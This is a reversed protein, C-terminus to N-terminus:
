PCSYKWQKQPQIFICVPSNLEGAILEYNFAEFQRSLMVFPERFELDACLQHLLRVAAPRPWGSAVGLCKEVHSVLFRGQHGWCGPSVGTKLPDWPHPPAASGAGANSYM